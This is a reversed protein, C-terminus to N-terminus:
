CRRTSFGVASPSGFRPHIAGGLLWLRERKAIRVAQHGRSRTIRASSPSDVSIQSRRRKESPRTRAPAGGPGVTQMSTWFNPRAFGVQLRMTFPRIPRAGSGAM